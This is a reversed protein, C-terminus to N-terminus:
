GLLYYDLHLAAMYKVCRDACSVQINESCVFLKNTYLQISEFYSVSM